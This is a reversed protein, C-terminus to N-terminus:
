QSVVRNREHVVDCAIRYWLWALRVACWLVMGDRGDTVSVGDPWKHYSHKVPVISLCSLVPVDEVSLFAVIEEFFPVVDASFVRFQEIVGTEARQQHRGDRQREEM